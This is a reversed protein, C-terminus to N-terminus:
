HGHVIEMRVVERPPIFSKPDSVRLYYIGPVLSELVEEHWEAVEGEGLRGILPIMSPSPSVELLWRRKLRHDVPIPPPTAYAGIDVVRLVEIRSLLELSKRLWLCWPRSPFHKEVFLRHSEAMYAAKKSRHETTGSQNYRHVVRAERAVAMAWGGLRLRRFLDTDEFYMFFRPDFLGGVAEVASRRLLVHGGCLDPQPILPEKGLWYRLTNWRWYLSDLWIPLSHPSHRPLCIDRLPSPPINPPMMFRLSPEWYAMPGVAGLDRQEELASCLVELAGPLLQADPNLLLFYPTDDQEFVLNCARGFGMNERNLVLHDLPFGLAGLGEELRRGEDRDGSNDVVWVTPRPHQCLLSRVAGITHHASFYNVVAATVPGM